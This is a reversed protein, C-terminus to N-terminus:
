DVLIPASLSLDGAHKAAWVTYSGKPVRWGDDWIALQDREIVVTVTESQGASLTVQTWAELERVSREL